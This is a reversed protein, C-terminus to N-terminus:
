HFGSIEASIGTLDTVTVKEATSSQLVVTFDNHDHGHTPLTTM